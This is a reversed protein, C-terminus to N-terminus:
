CEEKIESKETLSPYLIGIGSETLASCALWGGFYQMQTEFLM